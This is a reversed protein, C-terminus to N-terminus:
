NKPETYQQTHPQVYQQAALNLAESTFQNTVGAPQVLSLLFLLVFIAFFRILKKESKYESKYESM